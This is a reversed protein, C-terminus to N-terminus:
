VTVLAPWLLGFRQFNVPELFGPFSIIQYPQPWIVSHFAHQAAVDHPLRFEVVNLFM